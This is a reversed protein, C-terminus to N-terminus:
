LNTLGQPLEVLLTKTKENFEVIFDTSAPILLEQGQQNTVVFLLNGSYDQLEVIEGLLRGQKSLMTYGVFDDLYLEDEEDQAHSGEVLVKTGMLTLAMEPTDVEDLKVISVGHGKGRMSTVRFPIPIGELRLFVWEVSIELPDFTDAWGVQVEGNVGHTRQIEGVEVLHANRM